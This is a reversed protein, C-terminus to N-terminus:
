ASTCRCFIYWKYVESNSFLYHFLRFYKVWFYYVVSCNEGAKNKIFNPVATILNLDLQAIKNGKMDVEHRKNHPQITECYLFVESITFKEGLLVTRNSSQMLVLPPWLYGSPHDCVDQVSNSFDQFFHLQKWFTRKLVSNM